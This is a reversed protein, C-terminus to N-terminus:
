ARADPRPPVPAVPTVGRAERGGRHTAAVLYTVRTGVAIDRTGDSIATCHFPLPVAGGPPEAVVTGLGLERDFTAVTGLLPATSAV